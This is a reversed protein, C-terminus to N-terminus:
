GVGDLLTEESIGQMEGDKAISIINPVSVASVSVVVGTYEGEEDVLEFDAGLFIIGCAEYCGVFVFIEGDIEDAGVLEYKSDPFLPITIALDAPESDDWLFIGLSTQL